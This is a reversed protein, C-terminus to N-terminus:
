RIPTPPGFSGACPTARGLLHLSQKARTMGVYFARVIGDRPDGQQVLERMGSQSLDPFLWVHSSEAGKTSHITGVCVKPPAALARPGHAAAVTFAYETLKRKSPLIRPELWALGDGQQFLAQLKQWSPAGFVGAGDAAPM